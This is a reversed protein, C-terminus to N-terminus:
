DGATESRMSLTAVEDGIATMDSLPAETGEGYFSDYDQALRAHRAYRHLMRMAERLAESRNTLGLAKADADLRRADSDPVRAQVLTTRETMCVMM